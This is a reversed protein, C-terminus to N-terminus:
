KMNNHEIFRFTLTQMARGQVLKREKGGSLQVLKKNVQSPTSVVVKVYKTIQLVCELDKVFKKISSIHDCYKM